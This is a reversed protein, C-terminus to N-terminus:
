SHPLGFRALMYAAIALLIAFATSGGWGLLRIITGYRRDCSATHANILTLAEIAMSYAKLPIGNPEEEGM